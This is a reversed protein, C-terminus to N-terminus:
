LEDKETTGAGTSCHADANLVCYNSLLCAAHGIKERASTPLETEHECMEVIAQSLAKEAEFIRGIKSHPSCCAQRTGLPDTSRESALPDDITKKTENSM